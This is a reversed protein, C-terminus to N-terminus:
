RGGSLSRPAIVPVPRTLSPDVMVVGYRDEYMLAVVTVPIEIDEYDTALVRAGLPLGELADIDVRYFEGRRNVMVRNNFDVFVHQLGSVQSM